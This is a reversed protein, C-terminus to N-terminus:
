QEKEILYNIEDIYDEIRQLNDLISDRSENRNLSFRLNTIINNIITIKNIILHKYKM